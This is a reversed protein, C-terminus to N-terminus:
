LNKKMNVCDFQGSKVICDDTQIFGLKQYFGVAEVRSEICDIRPVAQVILLEFASLMSKGEGHPVANALPDDKGSLM